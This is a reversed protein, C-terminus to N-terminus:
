EMRLNYLEDTIVLKAKESTAHAQALQSNQGSYSALSPKPSRRHLALNPADFAFATCFEYSLGPLPNTEM